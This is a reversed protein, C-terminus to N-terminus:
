EPRRSGRLRRRLVSWALWMPPLTNRRWMRRPELGLRYLWELRLRRLWRPARPKAGSVFDFLGGATWILKAGLRSRHALAFAEQRPFGMGVILLDPRARRVREVVSDCADLPFYGHHAGALVLGPFARLTEEAAREVVEATAGLFFVRLREAVARRMVLPFLDTGNVDRVWGQGLAWAALKLGIGDFILELESSEDAEETWRHLEYYNNLNIHAAVVPPGSRARAILWDAVEGYGGSTLRSDLLEVTRLCHTPARDRTPDVHIARFTV